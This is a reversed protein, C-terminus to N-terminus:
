KEAPGDKAVFGGGFLENYREESVEFKEDVQRLKMNEKKDFFQKIVIVNVKTEAM